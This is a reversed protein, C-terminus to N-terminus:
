GTILHTRFGGLHVQRLFKRFGGGGGWVVCAVVMFTPHQNHKLFGSHREGNYRRRILIVDILLHRKDGVPGKAERVYFPIQIRLCQLVEHKHM